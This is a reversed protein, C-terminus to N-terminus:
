GETEKGRTNTQFKVKYSNLTICSVNDIHEDLSRTSSVLLTQSVTTQPVGNNSEEMDKGVHLHLERLYLVIIWRLKILKYGQYFM